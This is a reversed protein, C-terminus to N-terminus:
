LAQPTIQLFQQLVNECAAEHDKFWADEAYKRWKGSSSRDVLARLKNLDYGTVDLAALLSPLQQDPAATLAEYGLSYDAYQRGFLYSLKWLFYFLEYPHSINREDLFPFHYRLDKAWSRLYFHDHGAFQWMTGTPPFYEGGPFCSCWQDRPHRYLHIIKARPFTKRFWPLRFDIRNFQLVPRGRAKEALLEVYRKMQPDWSDPGMLLNHDIWSECYHRGLEELGEYERWYDDVQRHTPDIREGRSASDFWRRENLPEYYATCGDINRFLNWLLTSGTRFRATIFILDSRQCTLGGPDATGLEPYPSPSQCASEQLFHPHGNLLGRLTGSAMARADDTAAIKGVFSFLSNRLPRRLWGLWSGQRSRLATTTAM